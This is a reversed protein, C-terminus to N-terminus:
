KYEILSWFKDSDPFQAVVTTEGNGVFVPGSFLDGSQELEVWKQTTNDVVLVKEAEAVRLQFQTAQNNPLSETLPMQLYGQKEAFTGYTKPFPIGSGSSEVEFVIAQGYSTEPTAKSLIMLEYNGATPFAVNVTAQNGISQVLTFNEALDQGDSSKLRAMVQRDSPVGLSLALNGSSQLQGTRQDALSLRDGFFRPTLLPLQDFEARAIVPNFLQWQPEAPYHTYILQDPPPAFYFPNFKAQFKDSTVNGAGWTTDVLFWAGDLNVANWAHNYKPDEGVIGGVGKAYGEVIVAKIGLAQALAQFLNAYGSCITTRRELVGEPSLDDRSLSVDYTIHQTIWSYILRAKETESTGLPAILDALEQVSAGSYNLQAVQRDLADANALSLSAVTGAVPNEVRQTTVVSKPQLVKNFNLAGSKVTDNIDARCGSGVTIALMVLFVPMSRLPRYPHHHNM